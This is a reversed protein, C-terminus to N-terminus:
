FQKEQARNLAGERVRDIAVYFRINNLTLKM